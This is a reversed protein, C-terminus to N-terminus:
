GVGDAFSVERVGVLPRVRGSATSAREQGIRARARQKVIRFGWDTQARGAVARAWARDSGAGDQHRVAWGSRDTPRAVKRDQFYAHDQVPLYQYHGAKL